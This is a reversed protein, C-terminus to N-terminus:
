EDISIYTDNALCTVDEFWVILERVAVWLSSAHLQAQLAFEAKKRPSINKQRVLWLCVKLNNIRQLITELHARVNNKSNKLM